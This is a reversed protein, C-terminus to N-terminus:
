GRPPHCGSSLNGASIPPTSSSDAVVYLPSITREPEDYLDVVVVSRKPTRSAAAALVDDAATFFYFSFSFCVPFVPIVETYDRGNAFEAAM